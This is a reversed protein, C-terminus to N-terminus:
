LLVIGAPDKYLCWDITQDAAPGSAVVMTWDIYIAAIKSGVHVDGSNNPFNPQAVATYITDVSVIGAAVQLDKFKIYHKTAPTRMTQISRRLRRYGM